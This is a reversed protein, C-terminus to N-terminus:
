TDLEDAGLEDLLTTYSRWEPDPRAALHIPYQAEAPPLAELRGRAAAEDTCYFIWDRRGAATFVATLVGVWDAELLAVTADEFAAMARQQEESPLGSAADPRYRWSVTLRVPLEPHGALARLRPRLRVLLPRGEYDAEVAVWHDDLRLRDRPPHSRM